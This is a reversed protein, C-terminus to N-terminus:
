SSPEDEESAPASAQRLSLSIRQRTTDVGLVLLSLDEGETVVNSPDGYDGEALESLHILGEIGPELEVFAGFSALHTVVGNVLTGARYKEAAISWPDPQTRKLSLSIRQEERDVRLVLVQVAQGVKLVQSPHKVRTWALESLHVLGDVGGLDVFAGFDRLSSVVGSRVQGDAIEALLRERQQARWERQAARESLVLRRRRRNVEIVKVALEQGVMRALVEPQAGSEAALERNTIHSAPVFGQLSRLACLLGGKNYGTVKATVIEGSDMLKQAQEWDDYERALNISVLIHDERDDVRLVYVNLHDGVKLARLVEPRMQQLERPAVVADQKGNIDVVVENPSVSLITGQRIDGRAPAAYKGSLGEREWFAAFEEEPQGGTQGAQSESAGLQDM